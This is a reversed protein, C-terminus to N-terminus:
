NAEGRGKIERKEAHVGTVDSSIASAGRFCRVSIFKILELKARQDRFFEYRRTGVAGSRCIKIRKGHGPSARTPAFRASRM